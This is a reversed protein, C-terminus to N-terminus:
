SGLCSPEQSAAGPMCAVDIRARDGQLTGGHSLVYVFAMAPRNPDLYIPRFV